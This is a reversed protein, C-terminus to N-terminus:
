GPLARRWRRTRLAWTEPRRRRYIRRARPRVARERLTGGLLRLLQARHVTQAPSPQQPPHGARYAREGHRKRWRAPHHRRQRLECVEANVELQALARQVVMEIERPNVPKTLYDHAGCRMAELASPISGFRTMIIVAVDANVTHTKHLVDLGSVRRMELDTLVVHVAERELLPLAGHGGAATLVRYGRQTLTDAISQLASGEESVVLVSWKQAM